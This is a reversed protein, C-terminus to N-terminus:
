NKFLTKIQGWTTALSPTPGCGVPWAGIQDCEPNPPTFPACPSDERLSFDLNPEDCFFPDACINGNVGLQNAISGTWDGGANGYIDCCALDLHSGSGEGFFAGGEIAFALVTNELTGTGVVYTHIAGGQQAANRSLTCQVLAM